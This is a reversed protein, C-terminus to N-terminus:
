KNNIAKELQDVTEPIAVIKNTSADVLVMMPTSLIYYANAEMSNIGGHVRVHKWGELLPHVKDWLTVDAGADDLSLAFIDV